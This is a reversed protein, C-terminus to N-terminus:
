ILPKKRHFFNPHGAAGRFLNMLRNPGHNHAASRGNIPELDFRPPVVPLHKFSWRGRKPDFEEPATLELLHGVAYSLVYRDSEYFDKQRTFGGLARAIDGAVSPKEAIILKKGM